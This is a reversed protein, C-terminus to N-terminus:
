QGPTAYCTVGEVVTLSASSVRNEWDADAATDQVAFQAASMRRYWGLLQCASYDFLTVQQYTRNWWGKSTNDIGSGIFSLGNYPHSGGADMLWDVPIQWLTGGYSYGNWLCLREGPNGQAGIPPCDGADKRQQALPSIPSGAFFAKDEPRNFVTKISDWEAASHHTLKADWDPVSATAPGAVGLAIGSAVCLAAILSILRKM